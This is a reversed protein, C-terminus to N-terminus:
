VLPKRSYLKLLLARLQEWTRGIDMNTTALAKTWGLGGVHLVRVREKLLRQHQRQVQAIRDRIRKQAALEIAWQKPIRSGM